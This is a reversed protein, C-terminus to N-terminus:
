LYPSVANSGASDCGEQMIVSWDDDASGTQSSKPCYEKSELEAPDLQVAKRRYLRRGGQLIRGFEAERSGSRSQPTSTRSASVSGRDYMKRQCRRSPISPGDDESTEADAINSRSTSHTLNITANRPETPCANVTWAADSSYGDQREIATGTAHDWIFVDGDFLQPRQMLHQRNSSPIDDPGVSMNSTSSVLHPKNTRQIHAPPLSNIKTLALVTGKDHTDEWSDSNTTKDSPYNIAEEGYMQPLVHLEVCLDGDAAADEVQDAATYLPTKIYEPCVTHSTVNEAERGPGTASEVDAIVLKLRWYAVSDM